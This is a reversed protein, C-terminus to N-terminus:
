WKYKDPDVETDGMIKQYCKYIVMADFESNHKADNSSIGAFIERNIDPDINKLKFLTCIDFPIYYLKEPIQLAGGFLECLLVWDYALCDGWFEIKDDISNFWKILEEKIEITNGKVYTKKNDYLTKNNKMFEDTLFLQSIVNERVWNDIDNENYDTFEAYFSVGSECYFAISILTTKQILGTFEADCFIKKM